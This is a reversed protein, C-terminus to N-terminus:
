GQPIPPALLADMQKDFRNLGSKPYEFVKTRDSVRVILSTAQADELHFKLDISKGTDLTISISQYILGEALIMETFGNAKMNELPRLMNTVKELDVQEGNYMWVPGERNLRYNLEGSFTVEVINSISFSTMTRDWFDTPEFSKFQSLSAKVAYIKDAGAERVFTELYNAGAKGLILHQLSQGASSLFNIQTAQDTLEYKMQKETKQTVMRDIKLASMQSIFSTMRVSDVPYGGLEWQGSNQEFLFAEGTAQVQVTAVDEKDFILQDQDISKTDLNGTQTFYYLLALVLLSAGAYITQKNMM